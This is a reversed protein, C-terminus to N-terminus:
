RSEEWKVTRGAKKDVYAKAEDLRMRSITTIDWKLTKALRDIEYPRGVVAFTRRGDSLEVKHEMPSVRVDLRAHLVKSVVREASDIMRAVGSRGGNLSMVYHNGAPTSFEVQDAVFGEGAFSDDYFKRYYYPDKDNKKLYAVTIHPRYDRYTDVHDLKMCVNHHLAVMGPSDVGLKLVVSEENHFVSCRGLRVEFPEVSEVVRAVEDPDITMIGYKVTVHPISDRGGQIDGKGDCVYLRDDPLSLGFGRVKDALPKPLRVMLCGYSYAERRRM